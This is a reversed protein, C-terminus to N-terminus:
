EDEELDEETEIDNADKFQPLHETACLDEWVKKRYKRRIEWQRKEKKLVALFQRHATLTFYAFPNADKRTVDFKGVQTVMRELASSKMEEICSYGSFKPLSGYNDVLDKFMKGLKESIEGTEDYKILEAMMEDKDIYHKKRM